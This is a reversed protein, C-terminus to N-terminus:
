SSIGLRSSLVGLVVAWVRLVGKTVRVTGMNPRLEVGGLKSAIRTLHLDVQGFRLLQPVVQAFSGGLSFRLIRLIRPPWDIIGIGVEKFANSRDYWEYM